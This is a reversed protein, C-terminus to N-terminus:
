NAATGKMYELALTYLRNKSEGTMKVALKVAQNLPLEELLIKLLDLHGPLLETKQVNKVGEIVLVFEGKQQEKNELMWEYIESLRGAKVTEYLKTLERGIVIYRDDGLVAQMDKILTLIRHPSEYFVLTRMEDKLAKLRVKREGPKTPLFGEFIFRSASLGAVSLAAILACPGPIPIVDFGRKRAEYVINHGPDSILPTGADSILAIDNGKTLHSLLLYIRDKENHAHLSIIPTNIKLHNLLKKSHRTDEAAILSVNSLIRIARLSIDELNGIPTAVIFLKGISQKM